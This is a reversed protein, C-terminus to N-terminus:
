LSLNKVGGPTNIGLGSDSNIISQTLLSKEKESFFVTKSIPLPLPQKDILRPFSYSSKEIVPISIEWLAISTDLFFAFLNFAELTFNTLLSKKLMLRLRKSM